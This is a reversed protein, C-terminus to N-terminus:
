KEECFSSLDTMASSEFDEDIFVTTDLLWVGTEKFGATINGQTFSLDFADRIIGPLSNTSIKQGANNLLWSNHKQAVKMTFPGMMAVVLPQLQHTRHPPFTCIVIGNDTCYLVVDLM